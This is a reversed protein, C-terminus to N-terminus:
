ANEPGGGISRDDHDGCGVTFANCFDGGPLEPHIAKDTKFLQVLQGHHQPFHLGSTGSGRLWCQQEDLVMRVGRLQDFTYQLFTEIDLGGVVTFRAHLGPIRSAM